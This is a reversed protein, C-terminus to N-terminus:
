IQHKYWNGMYKMRDKQGANWRVAQSFIASFLAQAAAKIGTVVPYLMLMTFCIVGVGGAVNKTLQAALSFVYRTHLFTALVRRSLRVRSEGHIPDLGPSSASTYSGECQEHSDSVFM